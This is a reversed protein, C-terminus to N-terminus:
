TEGLDLMRISSLEDIKQLNDRLNQARKDPWGAYAACSSYKALLAEDSLPNKPMGTAAPTLHTFSQGNKMTLTVRSCEPFHPQFEPGNLENEEVMTVKSMADILEKSALIKTNIQSPGLTGFALICGIAFGMSFQAQSATAPQEHVLSIKVLHPVHCTVTKIQEANLENSAILYQTAEIAAQAASCVPMSKIAIGPDLLRWTRGLDRLGAPNKIGDNMLALFGRPDEFITQPVGIGADALLAAEVGLRAAQGAILPKADTGFMASMGNAQVAALAIARATKEREFGLTKAAGAAAGIAGLTSTAWWGKLYHHDSMTLGLAYIVESGAVFATLFDAGSIDAHEAAALVAPLVIASGHVVGAYSTDDFDLAHAAVGNALAAGPMSLGDTEGIVTCDGSGYVTAVHARISQSVRTRAGAIAVGFTDIVCRRAIHRAEHPIDDFALGAVWTGLHQAVNDILNDPSSGKDDQQNLKWGTTSMAHM